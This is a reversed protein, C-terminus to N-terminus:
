SWQTTILEGANPNIVKLGSNTRVRVVDGRRDEDRYTETTFLGGPCDAGWVITRGVGGNEFSGSQINALLMYTTGWIATKTVAQGKRASNYAAGGILINSLNFANAFNQTTIDKQGNNLTNGFIYDNLKTSRRIRNWVKRSLILTNPVEGVQEMREIANTIDQAVDITAINAETYAVVSNTATFGRSTSMLFDAVRKEHQMQFKRMALRATAKEMDFFNKMEAALSDDIREIYGRDECDYTDWEWKSDGEPYAANPARVEGDADLLGGGAIKLKPYRGARSEVTDTPLAKQAIFLKEVGMAEELFASIEPRSVAASNSYM